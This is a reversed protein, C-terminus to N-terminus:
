TSFGFGTGNVFDTEAADASGDPGVFGLVARPVVDRDTADVLVTVVPLVRRAKATIVKRQQDFNGILAM